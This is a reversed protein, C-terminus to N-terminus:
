LGLKRLVDKAQRVANNTGRDDPYIQAMTALYCNPIPTEYEPLNRSYNIDVVPQACPDKFIYHEKVWEPRFDKNIKPLNRLHMELVEKEPMQMIPDAPDPYNGLYVITNGGYDDKPVLNTHEIVALLPIDRNNVNLWYYGQPMLSKKLVLVTVHAARYRINSLRAAYEEPLGKALRLFVNMPTTVFVKDFFTEQGDITVAVTDKASAISQVSVGTRVTNGAAAIARTMADVIQGFGGRPYVLEEGAGSATRSRARWNLRSWMWAMSIEDKHDGFKGRLLPEWVVEYAKEGSHKKLWDAARVRSLPRYDQIRRVALLSAGLRLRDLFPLPAFGLLDKPTSFPYITTRHWLGMRSKAYVLRDGFGLEEALSIIDADRNSWHHYFGELGTGAVKLLGLLGGVNRNKELLTVSVRSNKSLFYALALGQIGGGVVAIKLPKM